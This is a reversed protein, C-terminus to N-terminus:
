SVIMTPCPSTFYKHGISVILNSSRNKPAFIAGRCTDNVVGSLRGGEDTILFTEGPYSRLVTNTSMLHVRCDPLYYAKLKLTRLVGNVDEISWIVYGEGRVNGEEGKAYGGLSRISANNTFSIFDDRYNTVCVSAGSDWVVPFSEYKHSRNSFINLDYFGSAVHIHPRAKSQRRKKEKSPKRYDHKHHRIHKVCNDCHVRKHIGCGKSVVHTGHHFRTRAAANQSHRSPSPFTDYIM